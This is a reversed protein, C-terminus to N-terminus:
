RSVYVEADPTEKCARLYDRVFSVLGEYSGWGNSPNLKEFREPDSELKALGAKLPEILQAAKTIGIEDPRWLAEYIGAEGAMTNLNHTINRSYYEEREEREHQHDCCSCRCEVKKPPGQLYVDLFYRDWTEALSSVGLQHDYRDTDACHEPYANGQVDRPCGGCTGYRGNRAFQRFNDGIERLTKETQITM